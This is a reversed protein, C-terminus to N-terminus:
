KWGNDLLKERELRVLKAISPPLLSIFSVAMLGIAFGGIVDGPTHAGLYLRTFAVAAIWLVSVWRWKNPLIIWLTLALATAATQHGSPFSPGTEVVRMHLNNHLMTYPRPEKIIKKVVYFVATSGGATVLFRWALRYKKFLLPILVCAAIPYAAGLAETLVKSLSTVFSPLHLNNFARFISLQMGTLQHKHAMLTVPALLLLGVVMGVVYATPPYNTKEVTQTKQESRSTYM